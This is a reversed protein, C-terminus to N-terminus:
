RTPKIRLETEVAANHERRVSEVRRSSDTTSFADSRGRQCAVHKSKETGEERVVGGSGREMTIEWLM